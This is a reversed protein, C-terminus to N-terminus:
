VKVQKWRGRRFFWASVIALSSEAIAIAYFVGDPGIGLMKAMLWALPIELLWFCFLNMWTPTWSDGAGNFAQALVMGYGYFFYGLCIIRLSNVGFRAVGADHTFFGIMWPATLWFVIAIAVMFFMNYHGCLWVSREARGPEKAGLNQGVLTAAANAIGWSPLLSFIIIRVAITYGAVVTSGFTSAIRVLFVWSASAILFQLIAGLSVNIISAIVARDPVIHALDVRVRGRRGALMWLQYIVGCARGITTAVAAGQVGLAPVPGWGFIFLPDLVMNIMNALWLSKLAIMPDGAGRFVANIVFLLMIVVNSGFMIRTYGAGVAIVEPSAGMLALIDRAYWAGPVAILVSLGLAIVIGQAAAVNAGAADKEGTRRAVVATVGMSLGWCISYIITLMSETLGITAVANVAAAGGGGIRGVWFIDVLAFVSEGLLELVMPICLLLIARRISGTTHDQQEGRLSLLVIDLARKMPADFTSGVAVVRRDM